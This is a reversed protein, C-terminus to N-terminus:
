RVDAPQGLTLERLRRLAQERKDLDEELMSTRTELEAIHRDMLVFSELAQQMLVVAHHKVGDPENGQLETYSRTAAEIDYFPSSPLMSAYAIAIQAEWQALPTAELRQYRQFYQVAEVYDGEALTKVGRELFTRDEASEEQCSCNMAENPLNLTLELDEAAVPAPEPEPEPPLTACSVTALISCALLARLVTIGAPRRGGAVHRRPGRSLTNTFRANM